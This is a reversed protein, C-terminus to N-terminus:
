TVEYSGSVRIKGDRAMATELRVCVRNAQDAFCGRPLQTSTTVDESCSASFNSYKATVPLTFYVITRNGSGRIVNAVFSFTVIKGVQIYRAHDFSVSQPNTSGGYYAVSPTWNQWNANTGEVREVHSVRKELARLQEAFKIDM